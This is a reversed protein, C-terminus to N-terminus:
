RESDLQAMGQEPYREGAAAGAPVAQEIAAVDDEGLELELAGLSEALQDRRRAGILPVIDEGRSLVWAVAAQAVTAGKAEAVERLVEVLALNRELNEGSFRPAHARFDGGAATRERSWHGSLLGRSLVGYATIGVGLERCAPLIEEELGRSVLSYEIQVDCVPHVSHARRITEAGAESLGIHRVYGQDILAGIAGVTEEIPVAPDVRAPRYVDVYDTGLRRLSYALFNAVAAPRGDIGGWRGDPGRLAGFKVSIVVDERRRGRLAERILLENDGMGYFDGTDLLTIGAELAADITAIGEAPDSPGYVGSMGM